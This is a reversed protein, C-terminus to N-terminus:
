GQTSKPYAFQTAGLRKQDLGLAHTKDPASNGAIEIMGNPQSNIPLRKGNVEIHSFKGWQIKRFPSAFRGTERGHPPTGVKLGTKTKVVGM